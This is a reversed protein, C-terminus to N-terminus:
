NEKAADADSKSEPPAANTDDNSKVAPSSASPPSIPQVGRTAGRQQQQVAQLWQFFECCRVALTLKHGQIAYQNANLVGAVELAGNVVLTVGIEFSESTADGIKALM